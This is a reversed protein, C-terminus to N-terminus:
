NRYYGYLSLWDGDCSTLRYTRVGDLEGPNHYLPVRLGGELNNGSFLGLISIGALPTEITTPLRWTLHNVTFNFEDLFELRAAKPNCYSWDIRSIVLEGPGEPLAWQGFGGSVEVHSYFYTSGSPIALITGDPLEQYTPGDPGSPTSEDSGCGASFLILGALVLCGFYSLSSGLHRSTRRWDFRIM